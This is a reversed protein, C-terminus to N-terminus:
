NVKAGKATKGEKFLRINEEIRRECEQYVDKKYGFYFLAELIVFDPAVLTLLINDLLAPARKEFVGHGIFQAIWTIVHLALAAKFHIDLLDKQKCVEYFYNNLVYASFYFTSSVLGSILDIQIYGILIVMLFIFNLDFPLLKTGFLDIEFTKHKILAFLSIIIQPICIFHIIKNVKTHHHSGYATFFDVLNPLKLM